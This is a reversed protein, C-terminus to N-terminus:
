IKMDSLQLITIVKMMMMMQASLLKFSCCNIETVIVTLVVLTKM